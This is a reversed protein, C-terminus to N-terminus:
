APLNGETFKPEGAKISTATVYGKTRSGDDSVKFPINMGATDGGISQPKVMVEQLYALYNDASTDEVIVELQLTRCADGKKREM